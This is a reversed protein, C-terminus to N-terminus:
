LEGNPNDSGVFFLEENREKMKELIMEYTNAYGHIDVISDMHDPTKLLRAIKVQIMELAHKLKPDLWSDQIPAKLRSVRTFDSYPHGYAEQRDGNVLKDAIESAKM